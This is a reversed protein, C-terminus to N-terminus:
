YKLLSIWFVLNALGNTNILDYKWANIFIWYNNYYEDLPALLNFNFFDLIIRHMIRVKIIAKGVLANAYESVDILLLQM